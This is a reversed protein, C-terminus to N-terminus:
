GTAGKYGRPGRPGRNSKKKKKKAAHAHRAEYRKVQRIIRKTASSASASSAGGFAVSVVLLAVLLRWSSVLNKVSGRKNTCAVRLFHAAWGFPRARFTTLPASMAPVNTWAARRAALRGGRAM